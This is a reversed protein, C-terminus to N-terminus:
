SRVSRVSRVIECVNGQKPKAKWLKKFGKPVSQVKTPVGKELLNSILNFKLRFFCITFRKKAPNCAWNIKQVIRSLTIPKAFNSCQILVILVYSCPFNLIPIMLWSQNSTNSVVFLYNVAMSNLKMKQPSEPSRETEHGRPKCFPRSFIKM